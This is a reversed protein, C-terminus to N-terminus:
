GSNMLKILSIILLDYVYPQQQSATAKNYYINSFRKTMM